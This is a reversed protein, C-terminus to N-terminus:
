KEVQYVPIKENMYTGSEHLQKFFSVHDKLEVFGKKRYFGYASVTRETQLFIQKVKKNKMVYEEMEKIFVTGMGQGQKRTKICFESINYETGTYWHMISGMSLGILEEDEFPGLTLSNRNGMLDMMYEHLQTEDSWDDNWPDNTFIEAFSSKIEEIYKIDLEKITIM